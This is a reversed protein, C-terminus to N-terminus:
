QHNCKPNVYGTGQTAKVIVGQAHPDRIIYDDSGSYVDVTYMVM